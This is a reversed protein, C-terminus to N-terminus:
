FTVRFGVQASSPAYRASTRGFNPNRGLPNPTEAGNRDIAKAFILDEYTGGSIPNANQETGGANGAALSFQPAYTEDVRFTGQRNYLNFVDVFLEATTGESLKRKYGLRLDIGHDFSGRGIQGRPLLFSEDAGYLSHAALANTPIGSLARVRGGVTIAGICTDFTRYADVKVYHPRDQPLKGRRNGLLEILDYQSSINPDIQGNDYSVLGPYNGEARSYTYSASLYLGSVFKRSLTLELAQYDRVPSDFMRIGRFLQLQQELRDRHLKDTTTAIEDLLKREESESWEGPNAIIYTNAGDTSVDEIVRGLRRHQLVAGLVFSSPLAIEAGLLAEDMYQAQIGPAVLVGSSGLLQESDPRQATTLCSMGDVIGLRPDIPGCNSPRFTQRLSVEGGFSRDNIDMPIGEYYRGWAGYVKSRGEETPDWIAGLRPSWNGRLRMATDGLRNGTLSDIEGRLQDAYYLRQEEYRVGANFTLYQTPHWSDQLYAGWNRTKGEVRTAPDDLGGLYRCTFSKSAGTAGSGGDPDPTTCTRDFRPDTEGPRALEAYRNVDITSGFNQIFAGGSYVRAKTKLNDEFDIGAKIEHTGVAKVRHLVGARFARRDERDRSLAGPGGINYAAPSPCNTIYPYLDNAGGNTCGALTAASEGGLAALKDLDVGLVQQLPVNDYAPDISGTNFTSRHWAALVEIETSGGGLKSTWRAATDTTLGSSQTGTSPLGFLAPSRGRTPVAIVSLQFQDDPTAAANIKGILQASRSTASRVERDLEDTIFFGTTPDIDPVTDANALACDSLAGSDLRVRCDTQRKTVRTYDTRALRPAAGVYFWARKPIIPGGLEFGVHGTYANDASVDISSANSPTEHAKLALIGPSMVGFVSGRLQDTGSRTIINVVGGTSRGYEANYGGSVVQIEHIFDNLLPTGVDGYTLGTIDVGDVLYRNELASSGSMAIGVGDNQAGAVQRMASEFTPGTPLSEMEKRGIRTEKAQSVINIPPPTGEIFVAEGIKLKHFVSTVGNAGVHVGRRVASTTDFAFEVDYTGPILETIKYGGEEDTISIQSGITVTVGGLPEGTEADTVVGQVAGTTISQAHAVAVGLVLVL